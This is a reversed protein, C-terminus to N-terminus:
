QLEWRFDRKDEGIGLIEVKIFKPIPTLEKFALVGERHHGGPEGGEWAVPKYAKGTDDILKVSQLVDHDLEISHTNMAINFKWEEEGESINIPKVTISIEGESVQQQFKGESQNDLLSSKVDVVPIYQNSLTTASPRYYIIAGGVIFIASVLLISKQNM